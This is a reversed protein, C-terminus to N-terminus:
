KHSSANRRRVRTFPPDPLGSSDLRRSRVRFKHEHPRPPLGDDDDASLLLNDRIQTIFKLQLRRVPARAEDPDLGHEIYQGLRWLRFDRAINPRLMRRLYERLLVDAILESSTRANTGDLKVHRRSAAYWVFFDFAERMGPGDFYLNKRPHDSGAPKSCAAWPKTEEHRPM